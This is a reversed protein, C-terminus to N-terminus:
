ASLRPPSPTAPAASVPSSKTSCWCFATPTTSRGCGSCTVRRHCLCARRVGRDARRLLARRHDGRRAGHVIRALDDAPDHGAEGQSGPRHTHRMHAVPPSATASRVATTRWTGSLAVGGLGRVGHYARERSVFLSRGSDGRARHYALAIKMATEVAESGSNTFFIHDLGAPPTLAAVRSSRRSLARTRASSVPATTSSWDLKAIPSRRPSRWPPWSRGPHHLPWLGRGAGPRGEPTFFHVGAAQAFLKPNAQFDRIPTFPLWHSSLEPPAPAEWSM